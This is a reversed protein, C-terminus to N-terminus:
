FNTTLMKKAGTYNQYFALHAAKSFNADQDTKSAYKHPEWLRNKANEICGDIPLNM